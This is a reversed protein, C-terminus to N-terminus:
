DLSEYLWSDKDNVWIQSTPLNIGLSKARKWLNKNAGSGYFTEIGFNQDLFLNHVIIYFEIYPDYAAYIGITGPVYYLQEWYKVDEITPNKEYDWIEATLNKQIEKSEQNEWVSDRICNYTKLILAM